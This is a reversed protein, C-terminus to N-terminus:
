KQTVKCIFNDKMEVTYEHGEKLSLPGGKIYKITKSEAVDGRDISTVKFKAVEKELPSHSSISSNVSEIVGTFKVPCTVSPIRTVGYVDIWPSSFVLLKILFIPLSM